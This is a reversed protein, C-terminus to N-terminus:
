RNGRRHLVCRQHHEVSNGCYHPPQHDHVASDKSRCEVVRSELDCRLRNATEYDCPHKAPPRWSSSHRPRRGYSTPALGPLFGVYGIMRDAM